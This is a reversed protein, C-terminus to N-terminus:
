VLEFNFNNSRPSNTKRARYNKKFNLDFRIKYNVNNKLLVNKFSNLKMLISEMEKGNKLFLASEFVSNFREEKKKFEKDQRKIQELILNFIESKKSILEIYRKSYFLVSLLYISPKNLQFHIILDDVNKNECFNKVLLIRNEREMLNLIRGILMRESESKEIKLEKIFPILHIDCLADLLDGHFELFLRKFKENFQHKYHLGEHLLTNWLIEDTTFYWRSPCFQFWISKIYLVNNKFNPEIMALPFLEYIFDHFYILIPIKETINYFKYFKKMKNNVLKQIQLEFEKNNKKYIEDRIKVIFELM